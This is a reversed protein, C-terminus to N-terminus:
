PPELLTGRHVDSIGAEHLLGALSHVRNEDRQEYSNKLAISRGLTEQVIIHLTCPVSLIRM